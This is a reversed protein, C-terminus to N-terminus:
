RLRRKEYPATDLDAWDAAMIGKRIQVVSKGQKRQEYAYLAERQCVSCSAAHKTIFCDRLSKHGHIRDCYCYCPIQYLVDPIKGAAFYANRTLNDKFSGPSLVPQLGSEPASTHYAPVRIQKEAPESQRIQSSGNLAGIMLVAALLLFDDKKM